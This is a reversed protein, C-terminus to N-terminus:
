ALILNNWPEAKSGSSGPSMKLPIAGSHTTMYAPLASIQLFSFLCIRLQSIQGVSSPFPQSVHRRAQAHASHHSYLSHSEPETKIHRPEESAASTRPTSSPTVPTGEGGPTGAPWLDARYTASNLIVRLKELLRVAWRAPGQQSEQTQTQPDTNGREEYSSTATGTVVSILPFFRKFLHFTRKEPFTQRPSGRNIRNLIKLVLLGGKLNFRMKLCNWTQLNVQWDKDDTNTYSASLCKFFCM